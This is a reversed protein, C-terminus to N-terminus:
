RQGTGLDVSVTILAKAANSVDVTDNGGLSNVNLKDLAVEGGVIRTGARLGSVDVAGHDADVSIDDAINRGNVTVVDASGDGNGASTLDINTQAVDTGVLSNVTVSDASGLTFLDFEEVNDLDMRIAAVDRLFVAESGNASLSMTEAANSGAFVLADRDGGGDIADSGEGPNWLATDQGLGLVETDNDRNGNVRDAGANGFILDQGDGGQIDDDGAGGSLTDAGPGGVITDNGLGGQVRLKDEGFESRSPFVQFQDDGARLFVAITDFATRDFSQPLRGNGLDVLLTSPDEALGLGITDDGTTGVITLTGGSVSASPSRAIAPDAPKALAANAPGALALGAAFTGAAALGLRRSTFSRHKNM